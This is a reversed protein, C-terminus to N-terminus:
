RDHEEEVRFHLRNNPVRFHPRNQPVRFEAGPVTSAVVDVGTGRFVGAAFINAAYVKGEYIDKTSAM